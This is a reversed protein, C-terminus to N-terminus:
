PQDYPFDRVICSVMFASTKLTNLFELVSLTLMGHQTLSRWLLEHLALACIMLPLVPLM